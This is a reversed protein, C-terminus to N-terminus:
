PSSRTRAKILDRLNLMVAAIAIWTAILIAMFFLEGLIVGAKYHYLSQFLYGNRKLGTTMDTKGLHWLTMQLGFVIFGIVLASVVIADLPRFQTVKPAQSQDDRNMLHILVAAWLLSCLTMWGAVLPTFHPLPGASGTQIHLTSTLLAQASAQWQMGPLMLLLPVVTIALAIRAYM